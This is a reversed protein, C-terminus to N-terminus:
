PFLMERILAILITYASSANNHSIFFLLVHIYALPLKFFYINKM